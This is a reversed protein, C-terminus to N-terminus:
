KKTRMQLIERSAVNDAPRIGAEMLIQQGKEPTAEPDPEFGMQANLDAVAQKLAYKDMRMLRVDNPPQLAM